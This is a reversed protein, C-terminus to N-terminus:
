SNLITLFEEDTLNNLKEEFEILRKQYEESHNLNIEVLSGDKNVIKFNKSMEEKTLVFSKLNSYGLVKGRYMLPQQVIYRLESKLSNALSTCHWPIEDCFDITIDDGVYKLEQFLKM